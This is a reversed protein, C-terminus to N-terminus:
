IRVETAMNGDTATPVLEKVVSAKIACCPNSSSLLSPSPSHSFLRPYVSRSPNPWFSTSMLPNKGKPIKQNALRNESSSPSTKCCDTYMFTYRTSKYSDICCIDHEIKIKLHSAVFGIFPMAHAFPFM